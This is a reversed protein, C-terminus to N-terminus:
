ARRRPTVLALTAISVLILAFLWWPLWGTIVGVLVLFFLFAVITM